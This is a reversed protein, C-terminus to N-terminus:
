FVEYNWKEIDTVNLRFESEIIKEYIEWSINEWYKKDKKLFIFLPIIKENKYIALVWRFEVLDIKNKLKFFPNHLSIFKHKKNKLNEALKEKNFYKALSKLYEKEFRKTIIVKM